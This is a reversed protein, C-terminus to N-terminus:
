TYSIKQFCGFWVALKQGARNGAKEFIQTLIERGFVDFFPWIDSIHGFIKSKRPHLNVRIIQYECINSKITDGKICFERAPPVVEVFTLDSIRM